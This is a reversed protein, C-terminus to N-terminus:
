QIEPMGLPIGMWNKAWCRHFGHQQSWNFVYECHNAAFKIKEFIEIDPFHEFHMFYATKLQKLCFWQIEPTRWSIGICNKEWHHQFDHYQSWNCVYESHNAAFHTTKFKEIAAFHEFQKFYATKLLIVTDWTLRLTNGHLKKSLLPSLWTTTVLKVCIWLPKCCIKKKLFKLLQFISM